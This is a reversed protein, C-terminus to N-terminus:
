PEDAAGAERLALLHPHVPHRAPARGARAADGGRTEEPRVIWATRLGATAAADLEAVTDSVFTSRAAQVGIARCIRRYSDASSKPGATRLDFYGHIWGSLDGFQSHAFWEQQARVSGSSYVFVRLGREFWNGMALLTDWYVHGTIDGRAYGEAWIMGQLRKLPEIKRDEDAWATLTRVASGDDDPGSGAIRHVDDLVARVAPEHAHEAVWPAMRARAYPFLVDRVHDTASTTGEVDLIVATTM